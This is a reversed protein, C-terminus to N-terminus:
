LRLEAQIQAREDESLHSLRVQLTALDVWCEEAMEGPWETWQAARILRPLDVLLRAADEDCRREERAALVPDDPVPGLNVHALEHALTCRRQAQSGGPRM